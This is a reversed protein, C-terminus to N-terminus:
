LTGRSVNTSKGWSPIRGKAEILSDLYGPEQMARQRNEDIVKHIEESDRVFFIGQGQSSTPEKLVAVVAKDKNGEIVPLTEGVVNLCEEHTVDWNILTTQPSLNLHDCRCRQLTRALEDKDDLGDFAASTGHFAFTLEDSDVQVSELNFFSPHQGRDRRSRQRRRRATGPTMGAPTPEMAQAARLISSPLDSANEIRKMGEHEVDDIVWQWTDQLTYKFTQNQSQMWVSETPPAEPVAESAM